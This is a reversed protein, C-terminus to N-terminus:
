PSRRAFMSLSGAAISARIATRVRNISWSITPSARHRPHLGGNAVAVARRVDDLEALDLARDRDVVLHEDANTRRRDVAGVEIADVGRGDKTRSNM